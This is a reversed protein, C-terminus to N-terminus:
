IRRRGMVLAVALTVFGAGILAWDMMHSKLERRNASSIRSAASHADAGSTQADMIAVMGPDSCGPLLADLAGRSDSSRDRVLQECRTQAATRMDAGLLQRYGSFGISGLGIIILIVKQMGASVTM